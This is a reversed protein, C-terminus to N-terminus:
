QMVIHAGLTHLKIKDAEILFTDTGFPIKATVSESSWALYAHSGIIVQQKMEFASGIPILNFCDGFFKRIPVLGKVSGQPTVLESEETYDKMIEDLDNNGFATLHHILVEQTLHHHEM